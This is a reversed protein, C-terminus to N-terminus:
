LHPEKCRKLVDPPNRSAQPGRQGVCGPYTDMKAAGGKARKGRAQASRYKRRRLNRSRLRADM